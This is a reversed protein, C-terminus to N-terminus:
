YARAKGLLQWLLLAFKGPNNGTKGYLKRLSERTSDKASDWIQLVMGGTSIDVAGHKRKGARMRYQLFTGGKVSERLAAILSDLDDFVPALKRAKYEHPQLRLDDAFDALNPM